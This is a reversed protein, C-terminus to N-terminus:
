SKYKELTKFENVEQDDWNWSDEIVDLGCWQKEKEEDIKGKIKVFGIGEILHDDGFTDMSFQIHLLADEENGYEKIVERYCKKAETWKKRDRVVFKTVLFKSQLVEFAKM